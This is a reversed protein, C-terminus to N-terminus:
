NNSVVYFFRKQPKLNGQPLKKWTEKECINVASNFSKGCPNNNNFSSTKKQLISKVTCVDGCWLTRKVREKM